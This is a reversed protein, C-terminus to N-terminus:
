RCMQCCDQGDSRSRAAPGSEMFRFHGRRLRSEFRRQSARKRIPRIIGHCTTSSNPRCFRRRGVVYKIFTSPMRRPDTAFHRYICVAYDFIELPCETIVRPRGIGHGDIAAGRSQEQSQHPMLLQPRFEVIQTKVSRWDIKVGWDDYDGSSCVYRDRHLYNMRTHGHGVPILVPVSAIM